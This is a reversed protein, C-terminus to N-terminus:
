QEPLGNKGEEITTFVAFLGSFGTLDFVERVQEQLHALALSKEQQKLSKAASLLVRLGSSSVYDVDKLHLLLHKAVSPLITQIEKELDSAGKTDLRGSLHLITVAGATEVSTKM